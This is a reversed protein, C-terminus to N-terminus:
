ARERLVKRFARHELQCVRERTLNLECGIAEFSHDMARFMLIFRERPTLIPDYARRQADTLSVWWSRAFAIDPPTRRTTQLSM